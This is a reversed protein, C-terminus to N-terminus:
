FKFAVFKVRQIVCNQPKQSICLISFLVIGDGWIKKQQGKKTLKNEMFAGVVTIQTEITQAKRFNVCIPDYLNSPRTVKKHAFNM